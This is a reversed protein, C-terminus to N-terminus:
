LSQGCDFATELGSGCPWASCLCSGVPIGQGDAVMMLKRGKGGKTKGVAPGKKPWWLAVM